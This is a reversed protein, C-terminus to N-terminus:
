AESEEARYQDLRVAWDPDFPYFVFAMELEWMLREEDIGKPVRLGLADALPKRGVNVLARVTAQWYSCSVVALIYSLRSIAFGAFVLCLLVLHSAEPHLAAAGAIAALSSSLYVLFVFFDVHARSAEIEARLGSPATVLLETWLAQSDLRYRDVGYTEFSRIANGLRTPATEEDSVPFRRLRERALALELGPKAHNAAEALRRKRDLQRRRGWARMRWPWAYGELLRYLPTSLANGILGLVMAVFGLQIATGSALEISNGAYWASPLAPLVVFAVSAVFIVPPLVWAYLFAWGAGTLGKLIDSM